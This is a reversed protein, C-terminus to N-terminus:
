GNRNASDGPPVTAPAMHVLRARADHMRVSATRASVPDENALATLCDIMADLLAALEPFV